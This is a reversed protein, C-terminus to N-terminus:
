GDRLGRRATDSTTGVRSQGQAVGRGQTRRGLLGGRPPRGPRSLHIHVPTYTHPQTRPIFRGLTRGNQRNRGLLSASAHRHKMVSAPRNGRRRPKLQIHVAQSETTGTSPAAGRHIQRTGRHCLSRHSTLTTHQNSAKAAAQDRIPTPPKSITARAANNAETPPSVNITRTHTQHKGARTGAQKHM